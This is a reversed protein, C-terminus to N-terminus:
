SNKFNGYKGIEENILNEKEIKMQVIKEDRQKNWNM